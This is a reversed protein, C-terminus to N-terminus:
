ISYTNGQADSATEGVTLPKNTLESVKGSVKLKNARRNNAITSVYTKTDFDYVEWIDFVEGSKMTAHYSDKKDQEYDVKDLEFEKEPKSDVGVKVPYSLRVPYVVMNILKLTILSLLSLLILKFFTVGVM